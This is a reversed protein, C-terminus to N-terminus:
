GNLRKFEEFASVINDVTDMEWCLRQYPPSTPLQGGEKVGMDRWINKGYAYGDKIGEQAPRLMLMPADLAIALYAPGNNVFINCYSSSYLAAREAVSKSALPRIPVDLKEDAKKTDRVIVCNPILRAAKIWEDVNSNRESWHDCERLTMTVINTKERQEAKLPRIGARLLEAFKLPGIQLEGYGFSGEAKGEREDLVKVTAGPLLQLIPVVVHDRMHIRHAVDQPWTSDNRFGDVPGPIVRIEVPGGQSISHVWMAFTVADYDPPLKEFDYYVIM